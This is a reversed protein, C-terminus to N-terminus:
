YSRGKRRRYEIASRVIHDPVPDPVPVSKPRRGALESVLSAFYAYLENLAACECGADDLYFIVAMLANRLGVAKMLDIDDPRPGSM